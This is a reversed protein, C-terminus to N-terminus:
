SSRRDTLFSVSISVAGGVVVVWPLPLHFVGIAVFTAVLVLLPFIDQRVRRAAGVGMYLSLGIAAAAAGNLVLHVIEFKAIASFVVALLVIVVASPIIIGALSALAGATGRQRYGIWIAMNSVNVGPLAQSLALGNFFEEESLWRHRHVCERLLWGSLGGGFSTLGIRAFVMFLQLASAKAPRDSEVDAM